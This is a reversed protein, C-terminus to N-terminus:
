SWPDGVLSAQVAWIVMQHRTEFGLKKQVASVANRVTFVKINRIEGIEQFTLGSAFLQLIEKERGTLTAVREWAAVSRPSRVAQALRRAADGTIRFEGYAVEWLAALFDEKGSYERLYGTAGAALSQEVSGPEGPAACMLVKTDPFRETIERCAEIGYSVPARVGMVVVDAVAERLLRLAERGDGARAAVRYEGTNELLDGLLDRIIREEDVLRVRVRTDVTM